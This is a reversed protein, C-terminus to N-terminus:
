TKEGLGLEKGILVNRLSPTGAAGIWVEQMDAGLEM